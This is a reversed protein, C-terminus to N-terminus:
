IQEVVRRYKAHWLLLSLSEPNHLVESLKVLVGVDVLVGHLLDGFTDAVDTPRVGANERRQVESRSEPLHLQVLFGLWQGSERDWPFSLKVPDGRWHSQQAAWGSKLSEHLAYKPVELVHDDVDVVQQDMGVCM